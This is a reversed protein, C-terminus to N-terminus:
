SASAGANVPPHPAPHPRTPWGQLEQEVLLTLAAIWEPETNLCPVYRFDHGGAAIFADRCEQAVEELTELCDAVFGPCMVDVSRVGSAALAQLTPETYPELWRAKGFRSQFTVLVENESLGLRERLRQATLLCQERYPDGLRVTRQPIGHFSLLLKEGRPVQAWHRQLRAALAALYGENEPYAHVIRLGPVFRASRSWQAVADFVSGSTAGAYQPYMPLILVRTCGAARLEDLVAPLAPTAYRMAFRVELDHGRQALTKAVAETQRLTWVALPSGEPMWISRYKAASKAPRVRLIVGHLIPWWILRPIEVVRPDGLFEALYRRVAAPTPADPTGLNVLLVGIREQALAPEPRFSM